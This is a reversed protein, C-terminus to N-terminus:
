KTPCQLIHTWRKGACIQSVQSICIGFYLALSKLSEGGSRLLRMQLVQDAKLKARGAQEGRLVSEPQTYSGHKEGKANRGKKVMDKNNDCRTGVFLHAPNVCSPNDCKHLVGFGKPILNGAIVFSVRHALFTNKNVWSRGYGKRNKLATWVWCSGINGYIAADPIPGQKNVKKWFRAQAKEDLCLSSERSQEAGSPTEKRVEIERGESENTQADYSM